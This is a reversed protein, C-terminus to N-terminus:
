RTTADIFAQELRRRRQQIDVTLDTYAEFASADKRLAARQVPCTYWLCIWPREPRPLRCGAPGAYRCVAGYRDIPQGPPFPRGTFHLVLLDASDYWPAATLCCPAPCFRCTRVALAAALTHLAEMAAAVAEASRSVGALREDEAGAFGGFVNNVEAWQGATTWPIGPVTATRRSSPPRAPPSMDSSPRMILLDNM